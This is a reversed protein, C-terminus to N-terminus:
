KHYAYAWYSLWPHARVQGLRTPDHSEGLDSSNKNPYPLRLASEAILRRLFAYQKYERAVVGGRSGEPLSGDEVDPSRFDGLPAV